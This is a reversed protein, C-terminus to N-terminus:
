KTGLMQLVPGPFNDLFFAQRRVETPVEKQLNEWNEEKNEETSIKKRPSLEMKVSM